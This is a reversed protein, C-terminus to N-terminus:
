DFRDSKKKHFTWTNMFGALNNKYIIKFKNQINLKIAWFIALKPGFIAWFV